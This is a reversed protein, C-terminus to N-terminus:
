GALLHIESTVVVRGTNASVTRFLQEVDGTTSLSDRSDFDALEGGCSQDTWRQGLAGRGQVKVQM